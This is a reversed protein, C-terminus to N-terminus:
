SKQVAYAKQQATFAQIGAGVIGAGVDDSVNFHRSIIIMTCGTLLYLFSWMQDTILPRPVNTTVTSTTTSPVLTTSPASDTM